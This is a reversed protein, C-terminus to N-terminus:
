LGFGRQAYVNGTGASLIVSFTNASSAMTFVETGGPAIFTDTTVATSAGVTWRVFAIAATANHIRIQNGRDGPLVGSASAISGAVVVNDSTPNFAIVDMM